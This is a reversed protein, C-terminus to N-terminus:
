IQISFPSFYLVLLKNRPWKLSLYFIDSVQLRNGRNPSGQGEQRNGEWNRITLAINKQYDHISTLTSAYLFNLVLSSITEFKPTLCSESDRRSCPSWVLWGLLFDVSFVWLFSQQQPQLELLKAVQQSSSVWQFLGPHLALNFAPPSLSSLPHSPNIADSM